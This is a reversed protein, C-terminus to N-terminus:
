PFLKLLIKLHKCRWKFRLPVFLLTLFKIYINKFIEWFTLGKVPLMNEIPINTLAVYMPFGMNIYKFALFAALGRSKSIECRIIDIAGTLIVL